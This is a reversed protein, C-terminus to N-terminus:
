KIKQKLCLVAYSSRMLSQLEATPEDSRKIQAGDFHLQVGDDLLGLQVRTDSFARDLVDLQGVSLDVSRVPSATGADGAATPSSSAFGAWGIMDLVPVEGIVSLGPKASIPLPCTQVGTVLACRTHRRRSAFFFKYLCM